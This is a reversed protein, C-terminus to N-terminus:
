KIPQTSNSGSPATVRLAGGGVIHGGVIHGGVIHGGVVAAGGSNSGVSNSGASNSGASNSGASNSGASNSGASNSGASNSGASNSGASNSGASTPGASTPGTSSTSTTVPVGTSPRSRPGACSFLGAAISASALVAVVPLGLLWLRPFRTWVPEPRLAVGLNHYTVIAGADDGLERRLHLAQRLMEVGAEVEGRCFARTGLQHLAWAESSREGGQRSAALVTELVERWAGWRRGAAFATDIVRGLRIAERPRKNKAAWRLLALLAPGEQLQAAPDGRLEEAWEVFLRLARDGYADLRPLEASRALTASLTYRPSHSRIDRRAVADSVVQDFGSVDAISRLHENGVSADGFVALAAILQREADRAQSLKTAALSAVADPADTLRREIDALTSGSALVAAVAERIRLPHGLLVECIRQAPDREDPALPRGLEQEVVTVADTVGLGRLALPAGEWLSRERSAIVVCCCPMALPLQQAADRRLELGDLVVLARVSDLDRRIQSDSPKFPPECDYFEEFLGQMVDELQGHAFLYVAGDRLPKDAGRQLAQLLVYTKGVGPEGYVNVARLERVADVIATAEADRDVIDAYPKPVSRLPRPRQRKQPRQARALRELLAGQEPGLKLEVSVNDGTVVVSDVIDGAVAVDRDRVAHAAAQEQGPRTV